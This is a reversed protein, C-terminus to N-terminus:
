EVEKCSDQEQVEKDDEAKDQAQKKIDFRYLALGCSITSFSDSLLAVLYFNAISNAVWVAMHFFSLLRYQKRDKVFYAFIGLFGATICFVDVWSSVTFVTVLIQAVLFAVLWAWSDAWARKGRQMFVLLKVVNIVCTLASAFNGFLVFYMVWCANAVTSLMFCKDRSKVQYELIKCIIAFVGFANLIIMYWIGLTDNLTKIMNVSFDAITLLNNM